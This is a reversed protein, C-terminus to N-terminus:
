FCTHFEQKELLQAKNHENFSKTKFPRLTKTKVGGDSGHAVLDWTPVEPALGNDDKNNIIFIIFLLSLKKKLWTPLPQQFFIFPLWSTSSFSLGKILLEAESPHRTLIDTSVSSWKLSCFGALRTFKVNWLGRKQSIHYFYHLWWRFFPLLKSDTSNKGGVEKHAQNQRFHHFIQTLSHYLKVTYNRPRLMNLSKNAGPTVAAVLVSTLDLSKSFVFCFM